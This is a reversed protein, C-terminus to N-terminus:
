FVLKSNSANKDSDFNQNSNLIIMSTLLLSFTLVLVSKRPCKKGFSLNSSCKKGFSESFIM